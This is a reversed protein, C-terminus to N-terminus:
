LAALVDPDSQLDAYIADLQERSEAQFACSVSIYRGNRSERTHVAHTGLAAHQEVAKRVREPFGAANAGFAKVTYPIPYEVQAGGLPCQESM